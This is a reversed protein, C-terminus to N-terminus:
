DISEVLEIIEPEEMYNSESTGIPQCAVKTQNAYPIATPCLYLGIDLKDDSALSCTFENSMEDFDISVNDSYRCRQKTNLYLNLDFNGTTNIKINDFHNSAIELTNGNTINAYRSQPRSINFTDSFNMSFEFEITQVPNDKCLVFVKDALETNFTTQCKYTGGATSDLQYISSPCSMPQALNHYPRNYIDVKCEALEDTFVSITSYNTGIKVDSEIIVPPRTDNIETDIQFKMYLEERNENGSTDICKAFLYYKDDELDTLMIQALVLSKEFLRKYNDLIRSAIIVYPDLIAILDTGTLAAYLALQTRYKSKYSAYTSEFNTVLDVVEPLDSIDLLEYFQLPVEFSPPMRFSINHEEQFSGDGFWVSPLSSYTINPIYSLKCRTPEDTIISFRLLDGQPIAPTIEIGKITEDLITMSDETFTYPERLSNENFTITPPQTDVAQTLRCIGVGRIEEYECQQGLSHCRYESCVKGPQNCLECAQNEIPANWVGCFAYDLITVKPKSFPNLFDSISIGSLSDLYNTMTALLVPIQNLPEKLNHQNPDYPEIEQNITLAASQVQRPDRNFGRENYVYDRPYDTPDSNFFGGKTLQDAINRYNGCDGQYACILATDDVWKNPCSFGDCILSETATACVSGGNGEWFRFGPPVIPHCKQETSLWSSWSCDRQTQDSCCSEDTCASCGQWRNERIVAFNGQSNEVCIEERYDRAEEKFLEGDICSVKYHRSGVYSLGGSGSQSLLVSDYECWSEGHKRTRCDDCQGDPCTPQTTIPTPTARCTPNNFYEMNLSQCVKPDTNLFTKQDYQNFCCGYVNSTPLELGISNITDEGEISFLFQLSGLATKEYNTIVKYVIHPYPRHKEVIINANTEVMYEDKNFQGKTIETNLINIAVDYLKGLPHEVSQTFDSIKIIQSSKELIIPMNLRLIIQEQNIRAAARPENIEVLFGQNELFETSVCSQIQKAFEDALEREIEQRTLPLHVCGKSLESNQCITHYQEEIFWVSKTQNLTGGNYALRNAIPPAIDQMCTQVYQRLSNEDTVQIANISQSLEGTLEQNQLVFYIAFLILLVVAILLFIAVQGKSPTFTGKQGM